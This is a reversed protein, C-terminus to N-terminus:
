LYGQHPLTKQYSSCAHKSSAIFHLNGLSWNGQKDCLGSCSCADRQLGRSAVSPSALYHIFSGAAQVMLNGEQKQSLLGKRRNSLSHRLIWLHILSGVPHHPQWQCSELLLEFPRPPWIPGFWSNELKAACLIAPPAKFGNRGVPQM